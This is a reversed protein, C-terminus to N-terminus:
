RAQLTLRKFFLGPSLTRSTLSTQFFCLLVCFAGEHKAGGGKLLAAPCVFLCVPPRVRVQCVPYRTWLNKRSQFGTRSLTGEASFSRRRQISSTIGSIQLIQNSKMEQRSSYRRGTRGLLKHILSVLSKVAAGLSCRATASIEWASSRTSGPSLASTLCLGTACYCCVRSCHFTTAMRKWGLSFVAPKPSQVFMDGFTTAPAKRREM